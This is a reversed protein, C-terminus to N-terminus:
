MVMQPPAAGAGNPAPPAGAAAPMPPAMQAQLASMKMQEGTEAILGELQRAFKFPAVAQRLMELLLPTLQPAQTMLPLARELYGTVAEVFEISDAKDQEADPRVTSDTQVEVTTERLKEERLLALMEPTVPVGSIRQLTGPQFMEAMIEAKIRLTDRIYEAMPQSRPTMRVRGFAGKMKQAAASEREKTAQRMLDSISTVEYILAKCEEARQTLQVITQVVAQLQWWWLSASIDEATRDGGLPIVTGDKATKVDVVETFDGNVFVVAKCIEVLRRIREHIEELEDLQDRYLRAEPVPVMSDTREVAYIPCPCPFFSSLKLPDPDRRIVRDYGKAIWVRERKRKEWIEWVEARNFTSTPERPGGGEEDDGTDARPDHSGALTRPVSAGAEGFEKVLEERTMAHKFGVWWVDEWTRAPCCRFDAWFVTRTEVREDTVVDITPAGKAGFDLEAPDVPAGDLLYQTAPNKELPEWHKCSGNRNIKGEVLTCAGDRFMLCDKCKGMGAPAKAHYEAVEQPLMSGDAMALPPPLAVQVPRSTIEPVYAERTVGRGVILFDDRACRMPADFSWADVAYRLAAELMIAPEHPGSASSRRKVEAVPLQGYVNPKLTQVNSWFLNVRTACGSYEATKEALYRDNLAEAEDRWKKETRDALALQALWFGAAEAGDSPAEDLAIQDAM